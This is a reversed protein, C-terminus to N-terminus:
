WTKGLRGRFGDFTGFTCSWIILLVLDPEYRIVRIIMDILCKCRHILCFYLMRKNAQRTELYTHNRCAYYYRSPSCTFTLIENDIKSLRDKVQSYNGLRHAMITNKAVIVEYGQNRFNMCYAYDVADIFLNCPPLEVLRAASLNVLSGSTIVGDCNYYDQIQAYGPLPLFKYDVFVRNRPAHSVVIRFGIYSGDFHRRSCM